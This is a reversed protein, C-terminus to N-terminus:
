VIQDGYVLADSFHMPAPMLEEEQEEMRADGGAVQLREGWVCWILKVGQAALQADLLDKRMYTFRQSTHWPDGTQLTISARRGDRDYLDFTQSHGGLGCHDVIERAPTAVSRTPQIPSHYGEWTNDRVPSLVDIVKPVSEGETDEIVKIEIRKERLIAEPHREAVLAEEIVSQVAAIGEDADLEAGDRRVVFPAGHESRTQHQLHLPSWGNSPYTVCWPVEGAYTYYDNPIDRVDDAMRDASLLWRRLADADQAHVVLSRVFCFRNRGTGSDEQSVHGALLVWPGHEDLLEDVLLYPRMGLNAGREIWKRLPLGDNAGVDNPVLEIDHPADPFSPDIDVDSIRGEPYHDLDLLGQDRRLGVLEYFAIWAYKKGYREIKHRDGQEHQWGAAHIARDIKGFRASTYGLDAIRWRVQEVLPTTDERGYASALRDITYHAFDRQIPDPGERPERDKDGQLQGWQRIDGGSAPSEVRRWEQATLLDPHRYMVIEVTYRAYDRALIHTTAHPANPAFLADYLLHGLRLLVPKGTGDAPEPGERHAMAVGYVV